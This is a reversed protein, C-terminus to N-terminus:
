PSDCQSGLGVSFEGFASYEVFVTGRSSNTFDFILTGFSLSTYDAPDLVVVHDDAWVSQPGGDPNGDEDVVRLSFSIPDSGPNGGRPDSIWAVVRTGSGFDVLRVSEVTCLDILRKAREGTAFANAPDVQIYDGAFVEGMNPDGATAFEVYGRRFGDPDESLGAVAAVNITATDRGGLAVTDTTQLTGDVEYYEIDVSMPDDTLNRVALLTTEGFVADADVEYAPVLLRDEFVGPTSLFARFMLAHYGPDLFADDIDFWGGTEDARYFAPQPDPETGDHDVCVRLDEDVVPNLRIGIYVDSDTLPVGINTTFFSPSTGIGEALSSVSMLETGPSGGPGDAAWLVVDYRARDDAGKRRFCVDVSGLTVDPGGVGDFLMAYEATDSTSFYYIDAEGDDYQAIFAARPLPRLGEAEQGGAETLQSLAPAGGLALFLPLALATFPSPRNM